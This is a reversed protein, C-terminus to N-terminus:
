RFSLFVQWIGEGIKTGEARGLAFLTERQDRIVPTLRDGDVDEIDLMQGCQTVAHIGSM